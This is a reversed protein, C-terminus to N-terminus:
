IGESRRCKKGKWKWCIRRWRGGGKRCRMIKSKEVNLELRKRELYKELKVIMGKM